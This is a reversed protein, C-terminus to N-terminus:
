DKSRLYFVLENEDVGYLDFIKKLGIIKTNTSTNTNIYIGDYIKKYSKSSQHNEIYYKLDSDKNNIKNILLHPNDDIILEITRLYMEQWSKVSTRAGLFEFESILRGTLNIEDALAVKEELKNEPEYSTEVM